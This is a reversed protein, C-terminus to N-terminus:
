KDHRIRWKRHCSPASSDTQPIVRFFAEYAGGSIFGRENWAEEANM